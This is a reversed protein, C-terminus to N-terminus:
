RSLIGQLSDDYRCVRKERRGMVGICFLIVPSECIDRSRDTIYIANGINFTLSYLLNRVNLEEVPESPPFHEMYYDVYGKTSVRHRPARGNGINYENHGYFSYTDCAVAKVTIRGM